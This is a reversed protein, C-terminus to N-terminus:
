VSSEGKRLAIVDGHERVGRKFEKHGTLKTTTLNVSVNVDGKLLSTSTAKLVDLLLALHGHPIKELLLGLPICSLGWQDIIDTHVAIGLVFYIELVEELLLNNERHIGVETWRDVFTTLALQAPVAASVFAPGGFSARQSIEEACGNLLAASWSLAPLM